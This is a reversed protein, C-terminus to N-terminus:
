DRHRTASSLAGHRIVQPFEAFVLLPLTSASVTQHATNSSALCTAMGRSCLVLSCPGALLPIRVGSRCLMTGNASWIPLGMVASPLMTRVGIGSLAM